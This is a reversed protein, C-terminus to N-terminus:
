MGQMIYQVLYGPKLVLVQNIRDNKAKGNISGDMCM